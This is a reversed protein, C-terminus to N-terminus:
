RRGDPYYSKWLEEFEEYTDVEGDEKFDEFSGFESIDGRPLMIWISKYEDNKESPKLDSVEHFLPDMAEMIPKSIEEQNRYDDRFNVLLRHFMQATINTNM